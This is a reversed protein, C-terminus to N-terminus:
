HWPLFRSSGSTEDSEIRKPTETSLTEGKSILNYKNIYKNAMVHANFKEKAYTYCIDTKYSKKNIISDALEDCSASLFGVDPIVIEPLSGYPTGFVPCGYYLSEIIALGFPEEWRVPFILGKSENMIRAKYQDDVMGHFGIRSSLTFRFGMRFNLRTGGLVELRESRTKKVVQIAGKVNKLRWAANGLFHFHKRKRDLQPEPYESWDLGNHIFSASGHRQAHRASVFVTNLPLPYRNFNGHHTYIFPTDPYTEVEQNLHILDYGDPIQQQLPIDTAFYVVPAFACTSGAPALFTVDHGQKVLERGLSWVVRNTGGYKEPPIATPTQLLIKM